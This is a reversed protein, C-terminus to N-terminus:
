GLGADVLLRPLGVEECRRAVAAIEADASRGTRVLTEAQLLQARLAALPRRGADIGALLESARQRAQEQEEASASASLLRVASDEDLEATITPIGDHRPITRVSRLRAAVAPAVSMGLRIRENTIAAALRPLQLQEAANMGADLRQEATSLEGQAAKVKAGGVYRATLYDVGGGEPGLEYSMELLCTAEDLEGTDYLLEGLVAGALRAAHSQSGAKVGMELAERFEGRATPIDLEQKAALGAFTHAYVSAFPGMLDQYPTAWQLFRRADDFDFRYIAAFAAVNGAVGPVRPHFSAPRSFAEGVLSDVRDCRDAFIDAVGRLVDAEVRLDTRLADTLEASGLAAEFRNLAATAPARRQLLINAWALALHLRPRSVLLQAPLKKAIELLTTMKSDELLRTEDQAVLDVALTPDGAALAHNVADNLYGHEAFWAAATRHLRQSREPDDRALRRRLFEAFLQHYRFWEPDNDIRQLFLGRHSVEELMALGRPQESLASALGACTRETISTALMFDAIEPELKDFVNEALFESVADSTGSLRTLLTSANAGNRLFLTALQLGAAWGDTSSALADVDTTSLTLGGVDNLLLRAEDAGFRLDECGIEVVEDHLRLRSVPLGAHSWSTVILQLHHCGHELLFGLAATTQSDSVRNWDDVVLTIRDDNEHIADILSTLVYRAADDGHEELVQALSMALAPRITRISELLHSLFWVANNDDDDVTLWAVAVGEGILHERWQAALTSKGYGSPANILILRRRGAARLLDYLRDRAVLSRVAVPPRYKTVPTPPTPTASTHRRHTSPQVPAKRSEVGFEVRHAM